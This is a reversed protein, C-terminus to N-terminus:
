DPKREAPAVDSGLLSHLLLVVVGISIFSDAVNFTPWSWRGYHVDFFDTVSGILMRDIFNGIAGGLLGALAFQLM